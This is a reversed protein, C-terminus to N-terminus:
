GHIPGEDEHSERQRRAEGMAEALRHVPTAHDETRSRVPDTGEERTLPPAVENLTRSLDAIVEEDGRALREIQAPTLVRQLTDRLTELTEADAFAAAEPLRARLRDLAAQLGQPRERTDQVEHLVGADVLASELRLHAAELADLVRDDDPEVRRGEPGGQGMLYAATARVDSAVWHQELAASGAGIRLRAVIEDSSLGTRQLAADLAARRRPEDLRDLADANIRDRSYLGQGTAPERLLASDAGLPHLDSVSALVESLGQELRPREAPAAARIRDELARVNRSFEQLLQDFGTEDRAMYIEQTPLVAGNRALLASARLLAHSVEEFGEASAEAALGRYTLSAQAVHELARRLDTGAREREFPERGDERAQQVDASTATRTLLGRDLRRTAELRLGWRDGEEVMAERFLEYSFHHGRKLYFMEGDPSHRNLVIHAHPHARDQHIAVVYDFQAGEGQFFRDCIAGVIERVHQPKTGIPFAMLLHSTHGLKPTRRPDWEDAFRQALAKIEPATLTTRDDHEGRADFILSSKTLLYTLQSHLQAPTHCGGKRIAKFIAPKYGRAARVMQASRGIRASARGFPADSASAWSLGAGRGRVRSWGEGFLDAAPGLSRRPM